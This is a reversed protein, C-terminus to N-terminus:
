KEREVEERENMNDVRQIRKIHQNKPTGALKATTLVVNFESCVESSNSRIYIHLSIRISDMVFSDHLTSYIKNRHLIGSFKHIVCILAALMLKM